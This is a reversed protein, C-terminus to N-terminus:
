AGTLLVSEKLCLLPKLEITCIKKLCNAKQMFNSERKGRKPHTLGFLGRFLHYFITKIPLFSFHSIILRQHLKLCPKSLLLRTTYLLLFIINTTDEKKKRQDMLTRKSQSSTSYLLASYFKGLILINKVLEVVSGEVRTAERGGWDLYARLKNCHIQRSTDYPLSLYTGMEERM